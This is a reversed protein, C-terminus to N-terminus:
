QSKLLKACSSFSHIFFYLIFFADHIIRKAFLSLPQLVSSRPLRCFIIVIIRSMKSALAFLVCSSAKEFFGCTACIALNAPKFSLPVFIFRGIITSFIMPFIWFIHLQEQRGCDVFFANRM